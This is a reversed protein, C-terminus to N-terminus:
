YVLQAKIMVMTPVGYLSTCGYNTVAELTASPSFGDSPFVMTSGYNICALNGMVMGFCHYLPVAIAVRDLHTYNVRGGVYKGNNLINCHTLAAGKPMGTTGSTFQINTIDDPDQQAM